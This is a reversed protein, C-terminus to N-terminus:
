ALRVRYGPQRMLKNTERMIAALYEIGHDHHGIAANEILLDPVRDLLKGLNACGDAMGFMGAIEVAEYGVALLDDDCRNLFERENEVVDAGLVSLAAERDDDVLCM